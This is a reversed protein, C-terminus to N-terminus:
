VSKDFTGCSDGMAFLARKQQDRCSSGRKVEQWYLDM